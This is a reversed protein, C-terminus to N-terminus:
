ARTLGHFMAQLDGMQTGFIERGDLIGSKTRQLQEAHPLSFCLIDSFYARLTEADQGHIEFFKKTIEVSSNSQLVSCKNQVIILVPRHPMQSVGDNAKMAFQQCRTFYDTSALDDNGLLM